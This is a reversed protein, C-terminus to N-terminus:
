SKLSFFNRRCEPCAPNTVLWDVICEKHFLHNCESNPSQGMEEGDQFPSLCIICENHASDKEHIFHRTVLKQEIQQRDLAEPRVEVELHENVQRQPQRPPQPREGRKCAWSFAVCLFIATFIFFFAVLAPNSSSYQNSSSDSNQLFRLQSVKPVPLSISLQHKGKWYPPQFIGLDYLDM